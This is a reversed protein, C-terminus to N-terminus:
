KVQLHNHVTRVGRVSSAIRQAEQVQAPNDVFGSLNVRGKYTEVSVDLASVRPDKLLEAKVKATILSDDIYAAARNREYISEAKIFEEPSLRGDHNEDAEDFGKAFDKDKAAEIRSVYGDHDVDLREFLRSNPPAAPAGGPTAAM